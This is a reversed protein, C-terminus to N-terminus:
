AQMLGMYMVFTLNGRPLTKGSLQTLENWMGAHSALVSVRPVFEVFTLSISGLGSYAERM